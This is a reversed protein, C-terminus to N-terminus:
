RVTRSVVLGVYFADEFDYKIALPVQLATRYPLPPNCFDMLSLTLSIYSQEMRVGHYWCCRKPIVEKMQSYQWRKPFVGEIQLNQLRKSFLAM